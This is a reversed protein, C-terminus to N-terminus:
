RGRYECIHTSEDVYLAACDLVKDGSLVFSGSPFSLVRVSLSSTSRLACPSVSLILAMPVPIRIGPPTARVRTHAQALLVITRPSSVPLDLIATKSFNPIAEYHKRSSLHAPSLTPSAHNSLSDYM